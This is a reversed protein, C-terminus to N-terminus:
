FVSDPIVFGRSLESVMEDDMRVQMIMVSKRKRNILENVELIMEEGNLVPNERISFHYMCTWYTKSLVMWQTTQDAFDGLESQRIYWGPNYHAHSHQPALPSHIERIPHFFFGKLLVYSKMVPLAQQTLFEKGDIRSFIQVQHKLKEMKQLLSDHGNPGIWYKWLRSHNVGIYYKCAVELHFIENNMKDKLIFDIEGTTNKDKKLTYNRFFCDFFPSHQFWFALMSEFRKGLLKQDEKEMWQILPSPDFDLQKLWDAHKTFQDDCWNESLLPLSASDEYMLPASAIAWALSAVQHHHYKPLDRVLMGAFTSITARM